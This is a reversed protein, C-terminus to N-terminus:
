PMPEGPEIPLEDPREEPPAPQRRKAVDWLRFGLDTGPSVPAEDNIYGGDDKGDPGLSYVIVGGETRRYRLPKGDYPDLPVSPLYAPRLEELSDPWRGNGKRYRELAVVVILSSARAQHRHGAAALRTIAPLLLRVPGPPRGKVENELLQLREPQEHPQLEAIQVARTLLDLFLAHEHRFTNGQGAMMWREAATPKGSGSLQSMTLGGSILQKLTENSCAREGRFMARALNLREEKRWLAHVAALEADSAEGQGLAREVSRAGVEVCAIHVLQSIAFPEDGISRGCVAAARASRLAGDIDGKECRLAADASLLWTLGRAEQVHPLLTSLVDRTYAIPYRGRDFDAVKRAETVAEPYKALEARLQAVTSERLRHQPGVGKGPLELDPPPGWSPSAPLKAYALRVAVAANESDPPTERDMEMDALRWHPDIADLAEEAERLRKDAVSRFYIAQGVLGVILLVVGVPIILWWPRRRRRPESPPFHEPESM